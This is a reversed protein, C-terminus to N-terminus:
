DYGCRHEFKVCKKEASFMRRCVKRFALVTRPVCTPIGSETAVVIVVTVVAAAAKVDGVVLEVMLSMRVVVEREAAVTSWLVGEPTNVIAVTGVVLRLYAPQVHEHQTTCFGM